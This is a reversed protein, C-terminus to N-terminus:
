KPIYTNVTLVGNVPGSTSVEYHTEYDWAFIEVDDVFLHNIGTKADIIVHCRDSKCFNYFDIESEFTISVAESMKERINGELQRNLSDSILSVNKSVVDQIGLDLLSSNIESKFQLRPDLHEEIERILVTLFTYERTKIFEKRQRKKLDSLKDQLFSKLKKNEETLKDFDDSTSGTDFYIGGGKGYLKGHYQM